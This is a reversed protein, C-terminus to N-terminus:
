PVTRFSIFSMMNIRRAGCSWKGMSHTPPIRRTKKTAVMPRVQLTSFNRLLFTFSKCCSIRIAIVFFVQSGDQEITITPKCNNTDSFSYLDSGGCTDGDIKWEGMWNWTSHKSDIQLYFTTGTSKFSLSCKNRKGGNSDYCNKSALFKKNTDMFRVTAGADYSGTVGTLSVSKDYRRTYFTLKCDHSM